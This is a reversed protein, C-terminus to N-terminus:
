TMPPTSLTELWPISRLIRIQDQRQKAHRELRALITRAMNQQRQRAITSDPQLDLRQVRRQLVYRPGINGGRSFRRLVRILGSWIAACFSRGHRTEEVM